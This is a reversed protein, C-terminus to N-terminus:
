MRINANGFNEKDSVMWIIQYNKYAENHVLYEFFARANDTMDQMTRNKFVIYNRHLKGHNAAYTGVVKLAAKSMVRCFYFEITKWFGKKKFQEKISDLIM